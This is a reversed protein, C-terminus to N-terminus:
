QNQILTNPPLIKNDIDALNMESPGFQEIISFSDGIFEIVEDADLEDLENEDEDIDDIDFRAPDM